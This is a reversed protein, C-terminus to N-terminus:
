SQGRVAHSVGCCRGNRMRLRITGEVICQCGWGGSKWCRAGAAAARPSRSRPLAGRSACRPHQGVAAAGALGHRAPRRHLRSSSPRRDRRPWAGELGLLVRHGSSTPVLSDWRAREDGMANQRPQASANRGRQVTAQRQQQGIQGTRCATEQSFFGVVVVVVIIPLIVIVAVIAMIVIAVTSERAHETQASARAARQRQAAM